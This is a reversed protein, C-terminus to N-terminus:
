KKNFFLYFKGKLVAFKYSLITGNFSGFIVNLIKHFLGGYQVSKDLLKKHNKHWKDLYIKDDKSYDNYQGLLSYINKYINFYLFAIKYEESIKNVYDNMSEISSIMKVIYGHKEHTKGQSDLRQRWFYIIDENLYFSKCNIFLVASFYSDDVGNQNPNFLINNNTVIEKKFVYQWPAGIKIKQTRFYNIVEEANKNNIKEKSFYDNKIYKDNGTAILSKNIVIDPNKDNLINVLNEIKTGDIWDDNDVFFIYEGSSEKIGTNRASAVGENKQHIVKVIKNNKAYEDCIQGSKDTSGDDVLIIEIDIPNSSLISDICKNLYREANYIPIVLSLKM